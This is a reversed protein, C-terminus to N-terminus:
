KTFNSFFGIAVYDIYSIITTAFYLLISVIIICHVATYMNCILLIIIVYNSDETLSSLM